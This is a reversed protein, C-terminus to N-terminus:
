MLIMKLLAAIITISAMFLIAFAGYQEKKLSLACGCVFISGIVMFLAIVIYKM